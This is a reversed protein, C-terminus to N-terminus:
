FPPFVATQAVKKPPPTTYSRLSSKYQTPTYGTYRKFTKNFNKIDNFGVIEAIDKILLDTNSLFRCANQIRTSHLYETFTIGSAKKILRSLYSVSYSFHKGLSELSLASNTYNKGIYAFIEALNPPYMSYTNQGFCRLINITLVILYGRIAELYADNQRTYEGYASNVLARIRDDKDCFITDTINIESLPLKYKILYNAILDSYNDCNKLSQDIFDPHFCINLIKMGDPDTIKYCHVVNCDAIFFNGACVDYEKGNIIHIGQGELVYVYEFFNHNHNVVDANNLIHQTNMYVSQSRTLTFIKDGM